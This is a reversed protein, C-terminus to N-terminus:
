QKWSPLPDACVSLARLARSPNREVHLHMRSPCTRTRCPTALACTGVASGAGQWTCSNGGGAGGLVCVCRLFACGAQKTADRLGHESIRSDNLAFDGWTRTARIRPQLVGLEGGPAAAHQTVRLSALIMHVHGHDLIAAAQRGPPRVGGDSPCGRGIGLPRVRQLLRQDLLMKGVFGDRCGGKGGRGEGRPRRRRRARAGVVCQRCVAVRLTPAQRPLAVAHAAVVEVPVLQRSCSNAASLPSTSMKWMPAPLFSM